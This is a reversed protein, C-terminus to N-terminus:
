RERRMGSVMVLAQKRITIRPQQLAEFKRDLSELQQELSNVYGQRLRIAVANTQEELSKQARDLKIQASRKFSQLRVQLASENDALRNQFEEVFRAEVANKSLEYADFVNVDFPESPDSLKAQALGTMLRDAVEPSALGTKVDVATAWLEKADFVANEVQFIDISVLYEAKTELGELTVHGFRPLMSQSPSKLAIATQVFPHSSSLLDLSEIEPNSMSLAMRYPVGQTFHAGMRARVDNQQLKGWNITAALRDSGTVTLTQQDASIKTSCGHANAFEDVLNALEMVGLYRGSTPGENTFGDIELISASALSSQNEAIHENDMEIIAERVAAANMRAEKQDDSLNPDLIARGIEEFQSRLIPELDGISNEFIGIREYLRLYMRSEFTDPTRMNIIHIKESQQGIRDIRGIRQEVQMPNWPLDYNVLVNCFQFDLGESGVQNAILVDFEGKRFAQIVTAREDMRVGGHLVGVRFESSLERRLYDITGRFFTFVLAQQMGQSQARHLYAKLADLKSDKSLRRALVPTQRLAQVLEYDESTAPFEKPNGGEGSTAIEEVLESTESLIDDDIGAQVLDFGDREALKQQMVPLSSCALRLPMQLAFGLPLRQSKARKLCYDEVARYLTREEETWEVEITHAERVAKEKVEIKRTRTFVSALPSLAYSVRRVRAIEESNLPIESDVLRQLTKFDPRDKIMKGYAHSRIKLLEKHAVELNTGNSQSVSRALEILARAPELQDGFIAFDPFSEPDLMSILNFLDREGLNLPTASLFVVKDAMNALMDGVFNSKAGKNRLVHAEDVILLDLTLGRAVFEAFLEPVRRSSEISIIGRLNANPQVELSDSFERLDRLTLLPLEVGFRLRMETQWKNRLQAPVVILANEIPSRLDLETWILGAEITKGLGVEDAILIRGTSGSLMKIVPIFQFPYFSTKTAAFSYFTNDPKEALKVYTLTSAIEQASSPESGLWDEPGIKQRMPEISSRPYSIEQSDILLVVISESMALVTGIGGGHKPRVMMGVKLEDGLGGNDPSPSTM